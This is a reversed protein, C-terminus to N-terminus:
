AAHAAALSPSAVALHALGQVRAVLSERGLPWIGFGGGGYTLPRDLDITGTLDALIRRPGSGIRRSLRVGADRIALTDHVGRTSRRYGHPGARFGHDKLIEAVPQLPIPGAIVAEVGARATAYDIFTGLRSGDDAPDWAAVRNSEFDWSSRTAILALVDTLSVGPPLHPRFRAVVRLEGSVRDEEPSLHFQGQACLGEQHGLVPHLARWRVIAPDGDQPLTISTETV